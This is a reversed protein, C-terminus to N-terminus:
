VKFEPNIKHVQIWVQLFKRDMQNRGTFNEIWKTKARVLIDRPINKIQSEWKLKKKKFAGMICLGLKKSTEGVSHFLTEQLLFQLTCFLLKTSYM